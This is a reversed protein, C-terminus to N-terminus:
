GRSKALSAGSYFPLVTFLAYAYRFECFVPSALLLTGMMMLVPVALFAKEKRGQICHLMFMGVMLWLHSGISFVVSLMQPLKMAQFYGSLIGEHGAYIGYDNRAVGRNWIWLNYGGNWYGKTQEIWAQAYVIPNRIGIDMWLRLYEAKHNRIYEGDVNFKVPDSLGPAYWEPVKEIDVIRSILDTQEETIEGDFAIVRAIQQIPISLAERFNAEEVGLNALVPHIMIWAASLVAAFLVTIGKRKQHFFLLWIVFVALLTMWGNSRLLATGMMGLALLAYNLGRKGLGEFVRYLATIFLLVAGGFLVDKWMTYSYIVHYPLMTYAAISLILCWKSVNAQYLTMVAFAFCLAMMVVQAVSYVAVAANIDGFLCLGLRLFVAIIQTHWYPHHNTYEGSLIQGVQSMSDPTLNGPYDRFFLSALNIAACGAFVAFFFPVAASRKPKEKEGDSSSFCAHLMWLLGAGVEYGAYLMVCCRVASSVLRYNALVVSLSFILAFVGAVWKEGTRRGVPMRGKAAAAIGAAGFVLYCGYIADTGRLIQMWEIIFAIRIFSLAWGYKTKNM